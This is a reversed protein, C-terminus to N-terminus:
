PNVAPREGPLLGMAVELSALQKLQDARAEIERLAAELTAQERLNVVFLTGEGVRFRVREAEELQSALERERASLDARKRAIALANWADKVDARVRDQLVRQQAELRALQAESMGLRGELTRTQIPWELGIGAEIETPQRKTSGEGLDQSGTISLDLGPLTQNRNLEVEIRAMRVQALLRVLEPRSSQATERAREEGSVPLSADPLNAPLRDAGIEIPQGEADRVVLGLEISAQTLARDAAFVQARRQMVARQNELVEMAPIQGIRSATELDVTRREAVELLQRAQGLRLGAAVWDWYRWCAMRATELHQQRFIAEAALVGQEARMLTARRRDISGNRLLPFIFGGRIEGISNTEQKGDYAAFDGLGLRYGGFWSLGGFSTAQDVQTDLRTQPYASSATRALRSRLTADFGGESLLRDQIASLREQDAAQLPPYNRVLGDLVDRVTLRGPATSALVAGSQLLLWGASVLLAPIACTFARTIM